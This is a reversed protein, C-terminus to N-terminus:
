LGSNEVNGNQNVIRIQTLIYFSDWDITIKISQKGELFERTTLDGDKQSLKDYHFTEAAIGICILLVLLFVVRSHVM